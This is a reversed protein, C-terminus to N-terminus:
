LENSSILYAYDNNQLYYFKHCFEFSYLTQKNRCMVCNTIIVNKHDTNDDFFLDYSTKLHRSAVHKQLYKIVKKMKYILKCSM